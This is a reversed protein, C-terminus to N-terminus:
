SAKAGKAVPKEPRERVVRATGAHESGQGAVAVTDGVSLDSRTGKERDSRIRTKDDLTWTGQWGDASRVTMSDGDIATIDGRQILVSKSGDKTRVVAEGHEVRGGWKRLAGAMKAGDKGVVKEAVETDGTAASGTGAAAVGGALAVALVGAVGWGAAAAGIRRTSGARRLRINGIGM